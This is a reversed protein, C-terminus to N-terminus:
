TLTRQFLMLWISDDMLFNYSCWLHYTMIHNKPDEWPKGDFKPINSPLKVPIAPWNPAHFIPDNTLRALYPLDLTDLFHLQSNPQPYQYYKYPMHVSTPGYIFQHVNYPGGM